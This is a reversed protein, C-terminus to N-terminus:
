APLTGASEEVLGHKRQSETGVVVPGKLGEYFARAEETHLLRREVLEGTEKDLM